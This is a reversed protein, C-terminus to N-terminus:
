KELEKLGKLITTKVKTSAAKAKVMMKQGPRFPDDKEGGKTAAKKVLKIKLLDLLAFEGPGKKGLQDKILEELAEFVSAVQKQELGTKEAIHSFVKTKPLAKAAEAPKQDAM